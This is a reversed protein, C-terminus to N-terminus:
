RGLAFSVVFLAAVLIGIIILRTSTAEARVPSVAAAAVAIDTAGTTGLKTSPTHLEAEVTTLVDEYLKRVDQPMQNVDAYERGNFVIRSHAPIGIAADAGSHTLPFADSGNAVAREYMRRLDPPMEDVTAYERGNVRLKTKITITASM